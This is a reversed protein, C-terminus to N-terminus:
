KRKNKRNYAIIYGLVYSVGVVIGEYGHVAYCFIISIGIGTILAGFIDLRKM